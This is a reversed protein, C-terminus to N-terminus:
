RLALATAPLQSAKLAESGSIAAHISSFPLLEKAADRRSLTRFNPERVSFWFPATRRPIALRSAAMSAAAARMAFAL